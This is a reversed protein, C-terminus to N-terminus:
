LYETKITCCLLISICLSISCAKFLFRLLKEKFDYVAVNAFNIEKLATIQPYMLTGFKAHKSTQLDSYGAIKPQKTCCVDSSSLLFRTM